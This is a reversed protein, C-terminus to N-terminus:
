ANSQQAQAAQYLAVARAGSACYALIPTPMTALADAMAAVDEATAHGPRIPVATFAVGVAEAARKIDVIGPQGASEGDPRNCIITEYGAAKLEAVNEVSIQGSIAFDETLRKVQLPAPGASRKFFSLM